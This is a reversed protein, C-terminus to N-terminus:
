DFRINFLSLESQEIKNIEIFSKSAIVFRFLHLITTFLYRNIKSIDIQNRFLSQSQIIFESEEKVMHFYRSDHYLAYDTLISKALLQVTFSSSNM